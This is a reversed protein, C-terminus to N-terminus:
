KAQKFLNQIFLHECNWAQFLRLTQCINQFNLSILITASSFPFRQRLVEPALGKPGLLLFCASM